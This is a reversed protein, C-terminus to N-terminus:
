NSLYSIKECIDNKNYYKYIIRVICNEKNWFLMKM